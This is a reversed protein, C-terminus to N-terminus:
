ARYACFCCTRPLAARRAADPDECWETNIYIYIYLSLSLSISLYIYIYVYVYVYVYVYLHLSIHIYIYIADPDECWETFKDFTAKLGPAVCVGLRGVLM